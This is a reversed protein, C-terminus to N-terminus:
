NTNYLIFINLADEVMLRQNFNQDHSKKIEGYLKKIEGEWLSNM